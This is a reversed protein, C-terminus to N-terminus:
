FSDHVQARRTWSVFTGASVRSVYGQMGSPAQSKFFTTSPPVIKTELYSFSWFTNQLSETNTFM